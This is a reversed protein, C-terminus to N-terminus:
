SSMHGTMRGATNYKLHVLTPKGSAVGTVRGECPERGKRQSQEPSHKRLKPFLSYDSEDDTRESLWHPHASASLTATLFWGAPGRLWGRRQLPSHRGAPPRLHGLNPFDPHSWPSSFSSLTPGTPSRPSVPGGISALTSDPHPVMLLRPTVASPGLHCFLARVLWRCTPLPLVQALRLPSALSVPPPALPPDPRSPPRPPPPWPSPLLLM